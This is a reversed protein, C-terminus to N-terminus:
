IYVWNISVNAFWTDSGRSKLTRPTILAQSSAKTFVSCGSKIHSALCLCVCFFGSAVIISVSTFWTDSSQPSLEATNYDLFCRHAENTNNGRTGTVHM